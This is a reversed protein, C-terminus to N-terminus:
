GIEYKIMENILSDLNYKAKWKLIKKAKKADGLLFNVETPRFYRKDIEIIPRNTELLIAKEHLGKGIWKINLQLKKAVKNIFYKVSYTKGSAIIYDNPTKKQLMKWMALVYDKAHGWDRKSYINGLFLKQQKGQKIRCLAKIIKRTVFTEGRVPSEHNFLIGNCAFINYAERYNITMHHAFVKAAAYPSRPYFKAKENILTNSKVNGYMESTGAQYFKIKKNKFNKISELIRLAGIGDIDSTYEPMQFSVAVHSQAALNYIEDPKISNIIMNVNGTDLLDGYHLFFKKRNQPEEYIDDIRTTNIISSRRIVGHVIYQKKLLLRALYSGDQGTIGFILAIKKM